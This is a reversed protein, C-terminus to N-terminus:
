FLRDRLRHVRRLASVAQGPNLRGGDLASALAEVTQQGQALDRASCLLVDMGARAALVACQADDGFADIAGAELADTITVGSFHLRHRLEGQVFRESLGAPFDPDIAPYLGWSTMVLDVGAAIPGTFAFEDVDRIEDAPLDLVVPGLDTNQDRTAAGLGPFHKATAAVGTAQQARVFAAGLTSCVQPDMSYSRGFRDDFNGEERFVDLVPALNMNMGVNRLAAGAGAGAHTAEALPDASLGIQKESLVPEEGRLRRILGGEQDTMLMLPSSATPSQAHAQRLETVVDAIQELSVINEGFFILGGVKGDRIWQLLEDPPTPGSYSFVVRQGVQQESTLSVHWPLGAPAAARATRPVGLGPAASAAIAGGAGLVPRRSIPAPFAPM